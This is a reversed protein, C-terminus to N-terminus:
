PQKNKKYKIFYFIPRHLFLLGMVGILISIAEDESPVTIIQPNSKNYYVDVSSGINKSGSSFTALDGKAEIVRGNETTFRIVYFERLGGIKRSNEFITGVVTGTTKTYNQPMHQSFYAFFVACLCLIIGIVFSGKLGTDNSQKQSLDNIM